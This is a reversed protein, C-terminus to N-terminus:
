LTALYAALDAASSVLSAFAPMSGKGNTLVNTLTAESAGVINPGAGGAAASGHCGACSAAYATQGAVPDAGGGGETTCTASCGDGATTNHDDCQEGTEVTGNGCVAGVPPNAASPDALYAAIDAAFDVLDVFAPMGEDNGSALVKAVEATSSDSIDDTVTGGTGTAGHCGTCAAFKALGDTPNGTTTNDQVHSDDEGDNSDVTGDGDDDTDRDSDMGDNDFDHTHSDETNGIGDNDIDPDVSDNIGDNDHDLSLDKGSAGDSDQANAFGDNDKDTDVLDPIHDGDTDTTGMLPEAPEPMGTSPQTGTVTVFDGNVIEVTRATDDVMITGLDIATTGSVVTFESVTTDSADKYVMASIIGSADSIILVYDHGTPVTLTFGDTVGTASDASNGSEDVAVINVGAALASAHLSAAGAPADVNGTIDATETSSGSGGGCAMATALLSAAALNLTFQTSTRM